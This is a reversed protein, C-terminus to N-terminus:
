EDDEMMFKHGRMMHLGGDFGHGMGMGMQPLGLEEAIQQAGEFDGSEMLEYMQAFQDFNDQNIFDTIQPRSDIIDRWAQYDKDAIAQEIADRQEQAQQMRAEIQAKQEDSLNAQNAQFNPGLQHASTMSSVLLTTVLLGAFASIIYFKNKM